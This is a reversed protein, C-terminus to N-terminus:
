FRSIRISRILSWPHSSLLVSQPLGNPQYNNDPLTQHKNNKHVRRPLPNVSSSKQYTNNRIK